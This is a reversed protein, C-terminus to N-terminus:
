EESKSDRNSNKYLLAKADSLEDTLKTHPRLGLESLHSWIRDHRKEWRQRRNELEDVSPRWKSKLIRRIAEPSVKFQEALVPTTFQDPAVAHLHRIGELADPSLKKPPSWGVEFKKRLADKQIQWAERKKKPYPGLPKRDNPVDKNTRSSKDARQRYIQSDTKVHSRTHKPKSNSNTILSSPANQPSKILSHDAIQDPQDVALNDSTVPAAAQSYELSDNRPFHACRSSSLYRQNGLAHYSPFSGNSPSRADCQHTRRTYVHPVHGSYFLNRLITPLSLKASTPCLSAM